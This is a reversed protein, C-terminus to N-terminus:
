NSAESTAMELLEQDTLAELDSLRGALAEPLSVVTRLPADYLGLLKAIERWGSIQASADANRRADAIATVIGALVTERDIRLREREVSRRQEIAAQVNARALLRCAQVRAAPGPAYGASTAARTGNSDILFELVFKEERASLM